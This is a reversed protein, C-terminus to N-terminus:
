ITLTLKNPDVEVNSALQGPAVDLGVQQLLGSHDSLLGLLSGEVYEVLQEQPGACVELTLVDYM